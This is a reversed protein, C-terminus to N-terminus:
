SSLRALLYAREIQARESAAQAAKQARLLGIQSRLGGILAGASQFEFAEAEAAETATEAEADLFIGSDLVGRSLADGLNDRQQNREERNLKAINFDRTLETQAITGELETRVGAFQLDLLRRMASIEAQRFKDLQGFGGRGGFGGGRGFIGQGVGRRIPQEDPVFGGRFDHQPRPRAPGLIDPGQSTGPRGASKSAPVGFRKTLGGFGRTREPEGFRKFGGSRTGSPPGFRKPSPTSEGFLFGGDNDRQDRVKDLIRSFTAKAM